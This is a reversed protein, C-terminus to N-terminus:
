MLFIWPIIWHHMWWHRSDNCPVYIFVNLQHLNLKTGHYTEYKLTRYNIKSSTLPTTLWPFYLIPLKHVINFIIHINHEDSLCTSRNIDSSLVNQTLSEWIITTWSNFPWWTQTAFLPLKSISLKYLCTWRLHGSNYVM